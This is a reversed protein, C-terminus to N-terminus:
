LQESLNKFCSLLYYSNGLNKEYPSLYEKKRWQSIVPEFFFICSSAALTICTEWFFSLPILLYTFSHLSPSFTSIYVFTFISSISSM